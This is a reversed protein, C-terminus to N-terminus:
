GLYDRINIPRATFTVLEGGATVVDGFIGGIALQDYVPAYNVVQAFGVAVSFCTIQPLAAGLGYGLVGLLYRNSNDNIIGYLGIASAISGDNVVVAQDATCEIVIQTYPSAPTAKRWPLTSGAFGIGGGPITDTAALLTVIQDAESPLTATRTPTPFRIDQAM